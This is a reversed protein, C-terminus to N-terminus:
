KININKTLFEIINFNKAKEGLNKIVEEATKLNERIQTMPASSQLYQVIDDIPITEKSKDCVPCVESFISEIKDPKNNPNTFVNLYEIFDKQAKLEYPNFFVGDLAEKAINPMVDATATLQKAISKDLILEKPIGALVAKSTLPDTNNIISDIFKIAEPNEKSATMVSKILTSNVNQKYAKDINAVVETLLESSSALELLDSITGITKDDLTKIEKALNKVTENNQSYADISQMLEKRTRSDPKRNVRGINNWGTCFGRTVPKATISTTKSLISM